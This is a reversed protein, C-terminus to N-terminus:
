RNNSYKSILDTIDKINLPKSLYEDMGAALCKEKDGKMAYATMAIIPIHKKGVSTERIQKTAEYGNMVPMQCDMFILDYDATLYAEVAEKGNIVWDCKLGLTDLIENFLIFNLESDEAVLIKLPDIQQESRQFSEITPFVPERNKENAAYLKQGLTIKFYELDKNQECNLSSSDLTELFFLIKQDLDDDKSQSSKSM